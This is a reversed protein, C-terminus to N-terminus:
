LERNVAESYTNKCILSTTTTEERNNTYDYGDKKYYNPDGVPLGPLRYPNKAHSCIVNLDSTLYTDTEVGDCYKNQAAALFSQKTNEFEQSSLGRHAFYETHIHQTCGSVFFAPTVLV